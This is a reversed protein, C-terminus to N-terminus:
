EQFNPLSPTLGPTVPSTSVTTTQRDLVKVSYRMLVDDNYLLNLFTTTPQVICTYILSNKKEDTPKLFTSAPWMAYTATDMFSDNGTRKARQIDKLQVTLQITDGVSAEVVGSNPFYNEVGYKYFHKSRFPMRKFEALTPPDPLLSWRLEEPYHDNIFQQPPTFYYFDNQKQVYDNGFNLYGSAWTVDVLHWTSDLKVVSWTHNTRFKNENPVRAYGQVIDAEVGTYTCLVKFLRAYGDCVATGRRMVRRALMEDGSLWVTATDLPDPSPRYSATWPKFIATNYEIHSVIWSYVARTKEHATTYLSNIIRALSDPTPADTSQMQWDIASYSAEKQQAGGALSFFIMLGFLWLKM